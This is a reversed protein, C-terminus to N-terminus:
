RIFHRPTETQMVPSATANGSPDTFQIRLRVRRVTKIEFASRGAAIRQLVRDGTSPLVSIAVITQAPRNLVRILLRRGHDVPQLSLRPLPLRPRFTTAPGRPALTLVPGATGAGGLAQPAAPQPPGYSTLAGLGAANFAAAINLNGATTTSTLLAEAQEPSLSTDYARLAALAASTIATAESDGQYTGSEPMGTAPNASDLECGPAFLDVNAGFNSFNCLQGTSTESGGVALVPPFAAPYAAQPAGENGAAAVVDLGDRRAADVVDEVSALATPGPTGNATLSLNIVKINLNPLHGALSQCRVVGQQYFSLNSPESESTVRIAIVRVANPAVGVTGWENQPAAMLMAMLTGHLEPDLDNPTGGDLAERYSVIGSTDPNLNVGTDVLCVGVPQVPAPAYDLFVGHDAVAETTPVPSEEARAPTGGALLAVCLGAALWWRKSTSTPNAQNV